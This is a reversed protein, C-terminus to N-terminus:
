LGRNIHRSTKKMQELKQSRQQNKRLLTNRAEGRAVRMAKEPDTIQGPYYKWFLDQTLQVLQLLGHSHHPKIRKKAFAASGYVGKRTQATPIVVIEKCVISSRHRLGCIKCNVMKGLEPHRGSFSRDAIDERLKAIAEAVPDVSTKVEEPKNLEAGSFDAYFQDEM